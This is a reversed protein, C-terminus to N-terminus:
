LFIGHFRFDWPVLTEQQKRIRMGLQLLYHDIGEISYDVCNMQVASSVIAFIGDYAFTFTYETIIKNLFTHIVSTPSRLIYQLIDTLIKCLLHLEYSM